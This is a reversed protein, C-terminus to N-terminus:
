SMGRDILELTFLGNWQPISNIGTRRRLIEKKWQHNHCLTQYGDPFGDRKLQAYFSVGGSFSSGKKRHASGSDDLHDLSLMDPDTVDCGSWSCRLEGLPGYHALVVMKLEVRAQAKSINKSNRCSECHRIKHGNRGHMIAVTAPNKACAICIGAKYLEEDHSRERDRYKSPNKKRDQRQWETGRIILCKRCYRVGNNLYTNEPTYEHSQPCHTRKAAIRPM